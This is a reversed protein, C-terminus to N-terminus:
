FLGCFLCGQKDNLTQDHNTEREEERVWVHFVALEVRSCLASFFIFCLVTSLRVRKRLTLLRNKLDIKLVEYNVWLFTRKFVGMYKSPNGRFGPVQRIRWSFFLPVRNM